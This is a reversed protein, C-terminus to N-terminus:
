MPVYLMFVKRTHVTEYIYFYYMDLRCILAMDEIHNTVKIVWTCLINFPHCKQAMIMTTIVRWLEGTSADFVVCFGTHQYAYWQGYRNTISQLSYELFFIKQLVMKRWPRSLQQESKTQPRWNFAMCCTKCTQMIRMITLVMFHWNPQTKGGPTAKEKNQGVAAQILVAPAM